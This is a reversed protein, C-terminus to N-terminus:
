WRDYGTLNTLDARFFYVFDAQMVHRFQVGSSKSRQELLDARLSLRNANLRRNRIRWAIEHLGSFVTYSVTANKGYESNGPVYYPQISFILRRNLISVAYFYLSRM